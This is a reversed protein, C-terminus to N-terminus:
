DVEREECFTMWAKLIRKARARDGALEPFAQQLYPVAGFMNTEGSERLDDLFAFYKEM